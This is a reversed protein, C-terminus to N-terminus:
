QLGQRQGYLQLVQFPILQLINCCYVVDRRYGRGRQSRFRVKVLTDLARQEAHHVYGSCTILGRHMDIARLGAM